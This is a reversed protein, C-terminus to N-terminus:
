IDLGRVEDEFDNWIFELSEIAQTIHKRLVINDTMEPTIYGEQIAYGLRKLAISLPIAERQEEILDLKKMNVIRFDEPELIEYTKHFIDPKCPYFEGEVGKIIYDGINAKMDGELTKIVIFEDKRFDQTFMLPEDSMFQYVERWNWGDFQVAEIVIPKKIYRKIM